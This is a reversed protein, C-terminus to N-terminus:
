LKTQAAIILGYRIRLYGIVLIKNTIGSIIHGNVSRCIYRVNRCLIKDVLGRM